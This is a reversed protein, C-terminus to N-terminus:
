ARPFVGIVGPLRTKWGFLSADAGAGHTEFSGYTLYSISDTKVIMDAEYGGDLNMATHVRFGGDKRANSDKLFMGFNYLTFFGGETTFLLINGNIDRAVVSRNAQWDTKNVKIKGNRDLLIPWHQVGQTYPTTQYDFRDYEFDLLDARPLDSAKPEAVLMGRVQKNSKPGKSQGDCIVLACPMYFPDSMYQAGNIMAIASTEAQWEEITRAVTKEYDFSHFVRIKNKAPEIRLAAVVDVSEAGRMVDVRCFQLGKGAPKWLPDSHTVGTYDATPL